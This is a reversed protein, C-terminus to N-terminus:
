PAASGEGEQGGRPPGTENSPIHAAACLSLAGARTAAAGGRAGVGKKQADDGGHRTHM